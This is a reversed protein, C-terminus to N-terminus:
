AVELDNLSVFWREGTDFRVEINKWKPGWMPDGVNLVTGPGHTKCTVRDGPQPLAYETTIGDNAPLESQFLPNGNFDTDQVTRKGSRRSKLTTAM